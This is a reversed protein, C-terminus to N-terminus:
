AEEKIQKDKIIVSKYIKSKLKEPDFDTSRSHIRDQLRKKNLSIVIDEVKHGFKEIEENRIPRFTEKKESVVKMRLKLTRKEM